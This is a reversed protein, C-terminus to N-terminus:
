ETFAYFEGFPERFIKCRIFADVVIITVCLDLIEDEYAFNDCSGVVIEKVKEQVAFFLANSDEYDVFFQTYISKLKNFIALKRNCGEKDYESYLDDLYDSYIANDLIYDRVSSLQNCEIKHDIKYTNKPQFSENEQLPELALLNVIDALCSQMKPFSFTNRDNLEKVMFDKIKAISNSKLGKILMLLTSIDYIDDQPVFCITDPIKYSNRKLSSANKTICLFKFNYSCYKEIDIKDLSRQVKTSESQSSVQMIIQRDTDVLDIGRVNSASRNVNELKWDFILNMLEAFFDEAHNNLELLNLRGNIEIRYGLFELKYKIIDFDDKRIM